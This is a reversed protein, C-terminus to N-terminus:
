NNEKYVKTWVENYSMIMKGISFKEKIRLRAKNCRKNWKNTDKERLAKEIANALKISNKPPVVWGTKGVIFFSDGVDTVICPTGCAMSEAVVNPFGEGYSSSLVHIDLGNMVQSVNDTQGM